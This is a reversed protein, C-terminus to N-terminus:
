APVEVDARLHYWRYIVDDPACAAAKAAYPVNYAAMMAQVAELPTAAEVYAVHLPFDAPTLPYRIWLAVDYTTM